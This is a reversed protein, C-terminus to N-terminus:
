EYGVSKIFTEIAQKNSEFSKEDKGYAEVVLIKDEKVGIAVLYIDKGSLTIISSDFVIGNRAEHRMTSKIAYKRNEFDIKLAESWFKQDARPYNEVLGLKLRVAGDSSVFLNQVASGSAFFSKEYNFFGEPSNYVLDSERGHVISRRFPTLSAIWAFPSAIYVRSTDRVIAKLKLSLTSFEAKSKLYNMRATINDIETTLRSIERLIEAKDWPNAARKLLDYLRDRIKKSTDVRLAMDNFQMTVDSARVTKHEVIGLRDTEELADDFKAVPVRTIIKAYKYSDSTHISEIFGGLRGTMEKVREVTKLVSEVQIRYEAGYIVMRSEASTKEKSTKGKSANDTFSEASSSRESDGMGAAGEIESAPAAPQYRAPSGGSEPRRASGCMIFSFIYLLFLPFIVFRHSRIYTLM